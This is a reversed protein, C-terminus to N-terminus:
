WRRKIQEFLQNALSDAVSVLKQRVSQLEEQEDVYEQPMKINRFERALEALVTPRQSQWARFHKEHGWHHSESEQILAQALSDKDRLSTLVPLYKALFEKISTSLATYGKEGSAHKEWVMSDGNDTLYNAMARRLCDEYNREWRMKDYRQLDSQLRALADIYNAVEGDRLKKSVSLKSYSDLQSWFSKFVLDVRYAGSVRIWDAENYLPRFINERVWERNRMRGALLVTLMGIIGSVLAGTVIALFQKWWEM